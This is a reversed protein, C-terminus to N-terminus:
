NRYLSSGFRIISSCSRCIRKRYSVSGFVSWGMSVDLMKLAFKEEYFSYQRVVLPQNRNSDKSRPRGGNIVPICANDATPMLKRVPEPIMMMEGTCQMADPIMVVDAVCQQARQVIDFLTCSFNELTGAEEGEDEGEPGGGVVVNTTSSSEQGVNGVSNEADIIPAQQTGDQNFRAEEDEKKEDEPMSLVFSPNGLDAETGEVIEISDLGNMDESGGDNPSSSPGAEAEEELVVLGKKDTNSHICTMHNSIEEQLTTQPPQSDKSIDVTDMEDSGSLIDDLEPDNSAFIKVPSTTAIPQTNDISKIESDETIVVSSSNESKPVVDLNTTAAATTTTTTTTSMTTGEPKTAEADVAPAGGELRINLDKFVSEFASSAPKTEDVDSKQEHVSLDDLLIKQVVPLLGQEEYEDDGDDNLPSGDNDVIGETTSPTIPVTNAEKIPTEDSTGQDISKNNISNYDKKKKFLRKIGIGM